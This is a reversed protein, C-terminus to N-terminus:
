SQRSKLNDITQFTKMNVFTWLNSYEHNDFCKLITFYQWLQLINDFNYFITLITFYQWFNDFHWYNVFNVSDVISLITFCFQGTSKIRTLPSPAANLAYSILSWLEVWQKGIWNQVPVLWGTTPWGLIPIGLVVLAAQNVHLPPKM